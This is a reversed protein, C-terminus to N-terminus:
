NSTKKPWKFADNNLSLTSIKINYKGSGFTGYKNKFIQKLNETIEIRSEKDSKDSFKDNGDKEKVYKWIVNKVSLVYKFTYHYM